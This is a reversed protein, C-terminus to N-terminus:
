PSIGQEIKKLQELYAVYETYTVYGTVTGAVTLGIVTGPAIGALAAAAAPAETAVLVVPAGPPPVVQGLTGPPIRAAASTQDNPSGKAVIRRKGPKVDETQGDDYLIQGLSKDAAMLSNGPKLVMGDMAPKFGEGRNLQIQGKIIKLIVAEAPFVGVALM